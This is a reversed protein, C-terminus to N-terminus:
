PASADPDEQKRSSSGDPEEKETLKAIIAASIKQLTERRPDSGHKVWRWWTSRPVHARNLVQRLDLRGAFIRSQLEVVRPDIPKAM